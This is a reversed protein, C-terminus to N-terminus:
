TELSLGIREMVLIWDHQAPFSPIRKRLSWEGNVDVEVADTEHEQGNRPDFLFARYPVDPEVGKIIPGVFSSAAPIFFVRVQGAIGAGYVRTADDRSSANESSATWEPHPEFRWWQYRKLLQKGLGVQRSGPLQAAEEWSPGSYSTGIPSLGYPQERRNLQWLGNAGYSHGCAGSLVCTWFYFRQMEERCAEVIGEYCVESNLVPLVPAAAHSAEVQRITGTISNRDSHGTQLMDLDLYQPEITQRAGREAIPHITVPHQYPDIERVYRAIETWGAAMEAQYEKLEDANALPKRYYPMTAEGALCWVVPYAGYRAVLKRWHRKMADLGAFDLFYGWCGVICPVLGNRVLWAIRLDAMDFYAPNVSEFKEDWPFGAENAGRADFAPMDPYLGAVIQIVSFGKRVRDSTLTKFEDPWELRNCLGMWWTDALWFFPKGDRHELYRRSSSVQLPGHCLLTNAGQYSSATLVGERGHLDVNDSDSCVTRYRHEGVALPACRVNWIQEGAWFAPVVREVGQPDTVVVDLAVERFPNRYTKGSSFSWETLSNQVAHLM